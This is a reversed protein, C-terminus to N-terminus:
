VLIHAQGLSRSGRIAPLDPLPRPRNCTSLLKSCIVSDWQRAESPLSNHLVRCRKSPKSLPRSGASCMMWPESCASERRKVAERM